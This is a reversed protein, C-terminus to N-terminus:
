FSNCYIEDLQPPSHGASRHAQQVLQGPATLQPNHPCPGTGSLAQLATLVAGGEHQSQWRLGRKVGLACLPQGNIEDTEM